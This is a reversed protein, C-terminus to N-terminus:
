GLPSFLVPAGTASRCGSGITRKAPKNVIMQGINKALRQQGTNTFITRASIAFVTVDLKMTKFM